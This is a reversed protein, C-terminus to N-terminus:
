AVRVDKRDARFGNVVTAPLSGADLYMYLYGCQAQTGHSGGLSWVEEDDYCVIEAEAVRPGIAALDGRGRQIAQGALADGHCAEVRRRGAGRRASHQKRPSVVVNRSQALHGLKNAVTGLVMAPESVFPVEVKPNSSKGLYELVIAIM